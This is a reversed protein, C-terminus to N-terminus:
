YRVANRRSSAGNAGTFRFGGMGTGPSTKISTIPSAVALIPTPAPPAGGVSAAGSSNASTFGPALNQDGGLKVRKTTSAPGKVGQASTLVGMMARRMRDSAGAPALSARSVPDKYPQREIVPAPTPIKPKSTCM